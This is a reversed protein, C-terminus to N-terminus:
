LFTLQVNDAATYDKLIYMYYEFGDVSINIEEFSNTYDFNNVDDRISTIKGLEKPIAYIVRGFDMTINNYIFKKSNKLEKSLQKIVNEDVISITDDIYGYYCYPLFSITKSAEVTDVGDFASAKVTFTNKKSPIFIHNYSFNGGNTVNDIIENVEIGDIYFNISQIDRSGKNVQATISISSLLDDVASYLEASPNLTINMQAKRYTTLMDRIITELETGSPYVKGIEVSGIATSATLENSLTYKGLLDVTVTEGTENITFTVETGNFSISSIGLAVLNAYQKALAYTVISLSM